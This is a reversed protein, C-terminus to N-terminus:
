KNASEEMGGDDALEKEARAGISETKVPRYKSPDYMDKFCVTTEGEDVRQASSCRCPSRTCSLSSGTLNFSAADIVM